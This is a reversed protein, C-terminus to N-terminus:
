RPWLAGRGRHRPRGSQGRRDLHNRHGCASRFADRQFRRGAAATGNRSRPAFGKPTHHPSATSATSCWAASLARADPVCATSARAAHEADLRAGAADQWQERARDRCRPSPGQAATAEQPRTVPLRVGHPSEWRPGCGILAQGGIADMSHLTWSGNWRCRGTYLWLPRTIAQTAKDSPRRPLPAGLVHQPSPVTTRSPFFYM